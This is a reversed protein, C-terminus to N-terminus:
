YWRTRCSSLHDCPVFYQSISVSVGNIVWSHVLLVVRLPFMLPLFLWLLRRCCTAVSDFLTMALRHANRFIFYELNESSSRVAATAPFVVIRLLMPLM